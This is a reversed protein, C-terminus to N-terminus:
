TEHSAEFERFDELPKLVLLTGPQVARVDEIGNARAILRWYKVQGYERAAMSWLSDGAKFLRQKTKDASNRRPDELQEAVTRYQKFNVTLTARVPTGDSLFMTFRQSIKEVVARFAFVGWSFEVRPPAHVEGDISLLDTFGRTLVSVDSGGGDTYTDFLLDMSLSQAGGNVFQLIPNSLGPPATEQYSSSYEVSYETPNFTVEVERGKSRGDLIKVLAKALERAM